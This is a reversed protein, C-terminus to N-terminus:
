ARVFTVDAFEFRAQDVAADFSDHFTDTVVRWERDCYFLYVGAEGEYQAIALATPTVMMEGGILHVTGGTPSSTSLDSVALVRAGDLTTPIESQM